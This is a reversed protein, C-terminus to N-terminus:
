VKPNLNRYLYQKNEKLPPNSNSFFDLSDPLLRLQIPLPLTSISDEMVKFVVVDDSWLPYGRLTMGWALTSKGTGSRACFAVVGQPTLVASAHLAELGHVQLIFPIVSRWFLDEIIPALVDNEQWALVEYSEPKFRFTVVGPWHMWNSQLAQYTVACVNGM